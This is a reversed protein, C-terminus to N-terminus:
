RPGHNKRSAYTFLDEEPYPLEIEVRPNMAARTSIPKDAKSKVRRELKLEKPDRNSVKRLRGPKGDRQANWNSPVAWFTGKKGLRAKAAIKPWWHLFHGSKDFFGWQNWKTEFFIVLMGCETLALREHPINRMDTNGSIIVRGGAKYFRNIWPSNSGAVYDADGPSPTFDKASYIEFSGTLKKFRRESAFAQFVKVLAIPIHEDLAVKM